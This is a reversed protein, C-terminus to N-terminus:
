QLSNAINILENLSTGNEGPTGYLEYVIGNEWWTLFGPRPEKNGFVLNYGAEGALADTGHFTIIAPDKDNTWFGENKLKIYQAMWSRFDLKACQYIHLQIGTAGNADFIHIETDTSKPGKTLYFQQFNGLTTPLKVSLPFEKRLAEPGAFSQQRKAWDEFLQARSQATSPLSLGGSWASSANDNSFSASDNHIINKQRAIFINRSLLTVSLLTFAILILSISALRKNM